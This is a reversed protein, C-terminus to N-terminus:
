FAAHVTSNARIGLLVTLCLFSSESILESESVTSSFAKLALSSSTRVLLLQSSAVLDIGSWGSKLTIRLAAVSWVWTCLELAGSSALSILGVYYMKWSGFQYTGCWDKWHFCWWEPERSEDVESATEGSWGGKGAPLLEQCLRGWDPWFRLGKDCWSPWGQLSILQGANWLNSWLLLHQLLIPVSVQRHQTTKSREIVTVTVTDGFTFFCPHPLSRSEPGTM